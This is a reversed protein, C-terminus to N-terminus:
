DGRIDLHENESLILKELLEKMEERLRTDVVEMSFNDNAPRINILSTYEHRDPGIKYPYFNRGWLDKQDSANELLLGEADTNMDGGVPIMKKRVDVVYKLMEPFHAKLISQIEILDIKKDSVIIM